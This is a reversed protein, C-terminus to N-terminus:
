ELLFLVLKRLWLERCGLNQVGSIKSISLTMWKYRGINLMIIMPHNKDHKSKWSETVLMLTSYTWYLHTHLKRNMLLQAPPVGTTSHPTIRYKLLFRALKTKLSGGEMKEIGEKFVRVAREAQGNSAPHYPSVKIHKIGNQSMFLEFEGSSFNTGNDSVVTKPLGHIAFIERLKEITATSTTSKMVHIELWKSYADILVLFMEGKYPGAYDIHVRSWPQGPWEWPHLPAEAPTKQNQQCKGCQKVQEEIEQDLGPWWVYSRALSKTRSIGPHAEHLVALVQARGKPPVIVRTGWLLCGDEVSIETRRNFYPQLEKSPCTINPWNGLAYQHVKSLVPDRRTWERIQGSHLPIAELLEMLKITDGPIPTEELMEPLPLRSLADANGNMAGAKYQIDYEYAALTLAWRQVRPSAQSSIGKKEGFLGELPKHDTRITFRKGYLFQHFKKVGVIMALAEKDITSYNREAPNLSRSVYGIPRETGDPMEHSLVAGIGYNSADSALVLKLDPNFHVLLDASQLLEKAKAFAEQQEQNWKWKQGKRLLEHLPELITAMNPLFKHYYNMMGLFARLQTVDRPAPANKIADVKAAVPYVGEGNIGYGCYIVEPQMFCCKDQRLRLGAELLRSLVSSLNDLHATDDEGSVLIDDM